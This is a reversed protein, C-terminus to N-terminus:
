ELLEKAEGRGAKDSEVAKLIREANKPSKMLYFTEQLSDYDSKSLVVMDDGKPRKIFLPKHTTFIEDFYAKMNQRFDSLTTVEMTKSKSHQQLHIQFYNIYM